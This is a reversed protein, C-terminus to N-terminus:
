RRRSVARDKASVVPSRPTTRRREILVWAALGAIVFGTFCLAMGSTRFWNGSVDSDSLPVGSVRTLLYGLVNLIGQVLAYWWVRDRDDVLLAVAGGFAMGVGMILSVGLYAEIHFGHPLALFHILAIGVLVVAGVARAVAPSLTVM